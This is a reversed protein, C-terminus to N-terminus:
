KGICFDNFIIELIDEIDVNGSIKSIERMALRIDEVFIDFNKIRKSSELYKLTEVLINKHRERSVNPDEEQIEVNLIDHIKNFLLDFGKGSVSSINYIKNHNIIYM